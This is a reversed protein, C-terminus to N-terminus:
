VYHLDQGGARILDGNIFGRDVGPKVHDFAESARFHTPSDKFKSINTFERHHSYNPEPSPATSPTPTSTPPAGADPVPAPEPAPILEPVEECNNNGALWQLLDFTAEVVKEITYELVPKAVKDIVYEGLPTRVLKLGNKTLTTKTVIEIAVELPVRYLADGVAFEDKHKLHLELSDTLIPGENSLPGIQPGHPQVETGLRYRYSTSLPQETISTLELQSKSLEHRYKNLWENM